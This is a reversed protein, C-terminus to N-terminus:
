QAWPNVQM